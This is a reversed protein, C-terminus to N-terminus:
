IQLSKKVYCAHKAGFLTKAKLRNSWGKTTRREQRPKRNENAKLKKDTRHHKPKATKDNSKMHNARKGYQEKWLRFFMFDHLICVEQVPADYKAYTM